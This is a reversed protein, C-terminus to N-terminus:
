GFFVNLVLLLTGGFTIGSFPLPSACLTNAIQISGSSNTLSSMTLYPADIRQVSLVCRAGANATVEIALVPQFLRVWIWM